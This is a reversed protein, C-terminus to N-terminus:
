MVCVHIWTNTNLSYGPIDSFVNLCSIRFKSSMHEVEAIQISKQWQITACVGYCMGLLGIQHWLLENFLSVYGTVYLWPGLNTYLLNVSFYCMRQPVYWTASVSHGLFTNLLNILSRCRRMPLSGTFCTRTLSVWEIAVYTRNCLGTISTPVFNKISSHCMCQPVFGTGYIRDNFLPAYRTECVCHDLNPHVPNISLPVYAIDWVRCCLNSHLPKVSLLRM